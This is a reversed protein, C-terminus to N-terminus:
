SHWNAGALGFLPSSTLLMLIVTGGGLVHDLLPAFAPECTRSLRTAFAAPRAHADLNASSGSVSLDGAGVTM